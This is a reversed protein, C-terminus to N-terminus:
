LGKAQLLQGFVVHNEHRGKESFGISHGHSSKGFVHLQTSLVPFKPDLEEFIASLYNLKGQNAKKVPKRGVAFSFLCSSCGEFLGANGVEIGLM